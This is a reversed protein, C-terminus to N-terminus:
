GEHKAMTTTIGKEDDSMGKADVVPILRWQVSPEPPPYPLLAFPGDNDYHPYGLWKQQLLRGHGLALWRFENSPQWRTKTEDTM